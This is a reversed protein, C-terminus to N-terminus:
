MVAGCQVIMCDLLFRPKKGGRPQQPITCSEIISSARATDHGPNGLKRTWANAGERATAGLHREVIFLALLGDTDVERSELLLLSSSLLLLLLM